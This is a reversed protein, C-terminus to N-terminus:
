AAGVEEARWACLLAEIERRQTEDEACVEQGAKETAVIVEEVSALAKEGAVIVEEVSAELDRVATVATTMKAALKELDAGAALLEDAKRIGGLLVVTTSKLKAGSLRMWRAATQKSMGVVALAAGFKGHQTAHKLRNLARGGDLAAQTREGDAKRYRGLAEAVEREAITVAAVAEQVIEIRNTPLM